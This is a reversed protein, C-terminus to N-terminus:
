CHILISCSQEQLDTRNISSKLTCWTVSLAEKNWLIDMRLTFLTPTIFLTMSLFGWLLLSMYPKVRTLMGVQSLSFLLPTSTSLLLACGLVLTRHSEGGFFRKSIRFCLVMALYAFLLLLERILLLLLMYIRPVCTPISCRLTSGQLTAVPRWFVNSCTVTSSSIGCLGSIVLTWFM